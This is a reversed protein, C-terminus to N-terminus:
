NLFKKVKHVITFQDKRKLDYFIPLSLCNNYYKLANPFDSKKNMKKFHKFLFIPIYHVQTLIKNQFLFRIFKDRSIKLKKFNINVIYLHWSSFNKLNKNHSIEIQEFKEFAKNYTNAIETRKKIFKDLNKLQSIGLACNIDSLRFNFGSMVIDYKYNYYKANKIM